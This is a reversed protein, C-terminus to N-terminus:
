GGPGATALGRTFDTRGAWAPEDVLPNRNGQAEFVAANRHHEYEGPPDGEHWRLLVELRDRQLEGPDDAVTGPYRLLFYLTARAVAGKGANPEFGGRERKGCAPRVVEEFDEFDFYATRGRFSNCGSECAFLHHLDGKMPEREAFWSQPVVHECNFPFAAELAAVLEDGAIGAPGDDLLLLGLGAAEAAVEALRDARRLEMAFDARILEDPEFTRGSYISRLKRDPHLDVWPYVHVLPRYRPQGTHTRAVLEALADFLAAADASRDISAYYASRAREDAAADYYPRADSGALEALAAEFGREAALRAAAVSGLGTEVRQRWADSAELKRRGATTTL